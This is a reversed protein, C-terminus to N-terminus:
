QEGRDYGVHMSGPVLPIAFRELRIDVEYEATAVRVVDLEELMPFPLCDFVLEMGDRSREDLIREARERCAKETKLNEVTVFETLYRKTGNRGLSTASLPHSSPLSASARMQVQRRHPKKGRTGKAGTVVVHNRAVLADYSVVPAALLDRGQELVLVANRSRRKATLQGRGNYFLVFPGALSILGNYDVDVRRRRREKGKGQLRRETGQWGFKAVNWLEDEPEVSRARPLRAKLEPLNYRKEGIRGMLDRIAADARRGKSITFGQTAFHPDLAYAEKGQAEITVRGSSSREFDTLPGCFVPVDIWRELEAVYTGRSVAVLNDAFLASRSPSSPDFGLQRRPDLFGLRLSRTVDAQADVEVAGDILQSAPVDLAEIVKENRDLIEVGVRMRHATRLQALFAARESATLALDLM